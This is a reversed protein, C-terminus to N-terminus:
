IACKLLEQVTFNLKKGHPKAIQTKFSSLKSKAYQNIKQAKTTTQSEEFNVKQFFILLMILNDLLKSKNSRM